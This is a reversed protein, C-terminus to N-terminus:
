SKQKGTKHDITFVYRGDDLLKGMMMMEPEGKGDTIIDTEPIGMSAKDVVEIIKFGYKELERILAFVGDAEDDTVNDFFSSEAILNVEKIILHRLQRRSMKM